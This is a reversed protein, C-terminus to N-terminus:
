EELRRIAQAKHYGCIFGEQVAAGGSDCEGCAYDKVMSNSNHHIIYDVFYDREELAERRLDLLAAAFDKELEQLLQAHFYGIDHESEVLRRLLSRNCSFFRQARERAKQEANMPATM